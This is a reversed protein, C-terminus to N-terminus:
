ATSSRARWSAYTLFKCDEVRANQCFRNGDSISHLSIRGKTHGGVYVLGWKPHRVYSGRTFGLSRTGGYPKRAGGKEPQLRHLQRRHLRIPTICLVVKNEPAKSCVQTNALVWSDVCHAEFKSSQKDKLKKLGLADRMQKTEWGSFTILEAMKRVDSYFWQKGVEIPSFSADWRRKGKTWARIDEVVVKVVPFVKSLWKLVRLKWGWRAKTSPPIGGRARNHKPARCPGRRFRRGRRMERRTKVADSVHTVADAQVSLFTHAKSKVTFAEKKSGPDVGIVVDQTKRDSPDVNLRVCFVGKKWFPTAKGYKIWRRARAHTTPMLPKQDKDVVPVFM